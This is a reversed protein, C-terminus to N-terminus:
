AKRITETNRTGNEREIRAFEDDENLSDQVLTPSPLWNMADDVSDFYPSQVSKNEDIWFYTYSSMGSDRYKILELKSQLAVM